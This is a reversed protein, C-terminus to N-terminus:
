MITDWDTGMDITPNGDYHPFKGVKMNTPIGTKMDDWGEVKGFLVLDIDGLEIVERLQEGSLNAYFPVSVFGAMMIAIDAILWERCNKSVVSIHANEKPCQKKLWTALRRAKDGAEAWTYTEWTEGFPQHLFPKSAKEKEFQYFYEVLTKNSM